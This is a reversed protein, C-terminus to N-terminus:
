DLESFRQCNGLHPWVYAQVNTLIQKLHERDHHVWEHMVNQVRLTGVMPHEGSLLLQDPSLGELMRVSEERATEFERLLVLGDKDCDHREAAVAPQNWTILRRGPKEVIRRIRGGFGRREAEILHGVVENICWESPAPHWRLADSGVAEMESRLMKVMSRLLEAAHDTALPQSEHPM